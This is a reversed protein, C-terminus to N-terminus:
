YCYDDVQAGTSDYLYGCDGSNNWIASGQGFSFGGSDPHHENTYVRVSQGPALEASPFVFNQGDDGANLRWGGINIPADGTNIIVAYEDSEIRSVQGDYYVQDIVVRPVAPPPPPQTPAMVEAPQTSPAPPTVTATPTSPAPINAAVAVAPANDVLFGAIWAGDALQHWNGTANRAVIELSQGAQVGGIVPYDTSPGARLNARTAPPRGTNGPHAYCTTHRLSTPCDARGVNEVNEYTARGPRCLHEGTLHTFYAVTTHCPCRRPIGPLSTHTDQVTANRVEQRRQRAVVGIQGGLGQRQESRIFPHPSHRRFSRLGAYRHLHARLLRLRAARVHEQLRQIAVQGVGGLVRKQVHQGAPLQRRLRLAPPRGVDVQLTHRRCRRIHLRQRRLQALLQTAGQTCV